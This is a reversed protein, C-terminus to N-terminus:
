GNTPWCTCTMWCLLNILQALLLAMLLRHRLRPQDISGATIGNIIAAKFSAYRGNDLGDFFDMVIDVDEFEPNEQEQYAWLVDDFRERYAVISEYPGQKINTYEKCASKKLVAAVKSISHVKHTEEIMRWLM